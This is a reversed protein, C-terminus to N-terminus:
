RHPANQCGVKLSLPEAKASLSEVKDFYKSIPEMSISKLEIRIADNLHVM